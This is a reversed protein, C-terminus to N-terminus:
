NTRGPDDSPDTNGLNRGNVIRSGNGTFVALRDNGVPPNLVGSVDHLGQGGTSVRYHEPTHKGPRGLRRTFDKFFIALPVLGVPPHSGNAGHGLGM